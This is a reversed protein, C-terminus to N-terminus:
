VRSDLTTRHLSTATAVVRGDQELEIACATTRRAARLIRGRSTIPKTVDGATIFDMHISVLVDSNALRQAALDALAMLVGGQVGGARNTLLPTADLRVRSPDDGPLPTCAARFLRESWSTVSGRDREIIERASAEVPTLAAADIPDLTLAAAQEWSLPPAGSPGKAFTGACHGVANAGDRLTGIASVIYGDGASVATGDASIRAGDDHQALQLTLTLTPLTHDRGIFHRAAAGLAYDALMAIDVVAMRKSGAEPPEFALTMTPSGPTLNCIGSLFALAPAKTHRWRAIAELFRDM